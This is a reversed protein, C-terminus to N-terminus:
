WIKIKEGLSLGKECLSAKTSFARKMKSINLNKYNKGKGCKGSEFPFISTPYNIIAQISKCLNASTIKPM